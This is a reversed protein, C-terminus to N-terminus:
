DDDKPTAQHVNDAWDAANIHTWADANDPNSIPHNAIKGGCTACTKIKTGHEPCRANRRTLYWGGNDSYNTWGCTCGDPPTDAYPANLGRAQWRAM